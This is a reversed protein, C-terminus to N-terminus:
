WDTSHAAQHTEKHVEVRRKDAAAAAAAVGWYALINHKGAHNRILWWQLIPVQSFYIMPVFYESKLWWTATAATKTTAGYTSYEDASLIYAFQSIMWNQVQIRKPYKQPYTLPYLFYIQSQWLTFYLYFPTFDVPLPVHGGGPFISEEWDASIDPLVSVHCDFAFPQSAQGM